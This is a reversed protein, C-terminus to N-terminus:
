AQAYLAQITAKRQMLSALAAKDGNTDLSAVEGNRKTIISTVRDLYSKQAQVRSLQFSLASATKGVNTLAADITSAWQALAAGINSGAAISAASAKSLDVQVMGSSSTTTTLKQASTISISSAGATTSSIRIRSGVTDASLGTGGFAAQLVKAMAGVDAIAGSGTVYGSTGALAGDVVNRDISITRNAGDVSVKLEMVDNQGLTVASFDSGAVSTAKTATSATATAATMSITGAGAVKKSFTVRQGTSAVDLSTIGADTLATRLVSALQSADTVRGSTPTYGPQGSLAREVTSADIVVNRSTAGDVSITFNIKADDRLQLAGPFDSGTTLSAKTAISQPTVSTVSISGLGATSKSLVLRQGSIAVDVNNLGANQLATKVVKSLQTVDSVVGSGAVYGPQSALAQDVTATSIRLTTNQGDIAVVMAIEDNPDLAIPTTFDTGTTTRAATKVAATGQATATTLGATATISGNGDMGTVSKVWVTNTGLSGTTAIQLNGAVDKSVTLKGSGVTADVAKQLESIFSAESTVAALQLTVNATTATTAIGYEISLSLRDNTDAGTANYKGFTQVASGLYASAKTGQAIAGMTGTTTGNGDVGTVSSISVSASTGTATTEVFIRGSGDSTVTAVSGYATGVATNISSALTAADTVGSLSVTVSRAVGNISM